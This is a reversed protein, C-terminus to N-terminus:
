KKKVKFVNSNKFINLIDKHVDKKFNNLIEDKKIEIEESNEEILQLREYITSCSNCTYQDGDIIFFTDACVPCKANIHHFNNEKM